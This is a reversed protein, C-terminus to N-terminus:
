KRGGLMWIPPRKDRMSKYLEDVAEQKAQAEIREKFQKLAPVILHPWYGQKAKLELMELMKPTVSAPDNEMFNIIQTVTEFQSNMIQPSFGPAVAMEEPLQEQAREYQSQQSVTGTTGRMGGRADMKGRNADMNGPRNADMNGPRPSQEYIVADRAGTPHKLRGDEDVKDHIYQSYSDAAEASEFNPYKDLGKQRAVGIAEDMSLVEGDVMQPIVFHRGDFEVTTTLVNSSQGTSEDLIKSPHKTPFIQMGSGNFGSWNGKGPKAEFSSGVNVGPEWSGGRSEKIWDPHTKPGHEVKPGASVDTPTSRQSPPALNALARQSIYANGRSMRDLAQKAAQAAGAGAEEVYASGFGNGWFSKALGWQKYANQRFDEADKQSMGKTNEPSRVWSEFDQESKGGTIFPLFGAFEDIAGDLFEAQSQGEGYRDRKLSLEKGDMGRGLSLGDGLFASAMGRGSQLKANSWEDNGKEDASLGSALLGLLARHGDSGQETSGGGDRFSDVMGEVGLIHGIDAQADTLRKSLNSEFKQKKLALDWFEPTRPDQYADLKRQYSADAIASANRVEQAAWNQRTKGNFYGEFAGALFSTGNSVM